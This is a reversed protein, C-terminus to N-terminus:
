NRGLVGRAEKGLISKEELDGRWKVKRADLAELSSGVGENWSWKQQLWPREERWKRAGLDMLHYRSGSLDHEDNTNTQTLNGEMGQTKRKM